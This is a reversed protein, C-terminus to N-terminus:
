APIYPRPQRAAKRQVYDSYPRRLVEHFRQAAHPDTDFEARSKVGGYAKVVEIAAHEATVKVGFTDTLFQWFFYEKCRMAIWGANERGKESTTM